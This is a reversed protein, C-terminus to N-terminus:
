SIVLELMAVWEERSGVITVAELVLIMRVIVGMM